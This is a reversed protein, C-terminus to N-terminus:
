KGDLLELEGDLGALGATEITGPTILMGVAARESKVDQALSVVTAQDVVGGGPAPALTVVYRIEGLPERRTAVLHRPDGGPQDLVRIGQARLLEVTLARLEAPPIAPRTDPAGGRLRRWPGVPAGFRALVLVLAAAFITAFVLIAFM